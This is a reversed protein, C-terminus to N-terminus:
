QTDIWCTPEHPLPEFKRRERKRKMRKGGLAKREVREGNGEVSRGENRIKM